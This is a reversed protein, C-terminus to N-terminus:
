LFRTGQPLGAFSATMDADNPLNVASALRLADSTIVIKEPEAGTALFDGMHCYAGNGPAVGPLTPPVVPAIALGPLSTDANLCLYVLPFSANPLTTFLDQPTGAAVEARFHNQIQEVSAPGHPAHNAAFYGVYTSHTTM